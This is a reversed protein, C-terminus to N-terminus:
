GADEVTGEGGTLGAVGAVFREVEGVPVGIALTVDAGYAEDVLEAGLDQVLRLVPDRAAYDCVVRLVRREVHEGRPM